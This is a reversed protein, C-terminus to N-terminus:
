GHLPANKLPIGIMLSLTRDLARSQVYEPGIMSTKDTSGLSISHTAHITPLPLFSDYPCGLSLLMDDITLTRGTLPCTSEFWGM